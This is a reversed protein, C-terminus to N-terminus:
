FPLNGNGRCHNYKLDFYLWLVTYRDKLDKAFWIADQIKAKGYLEEFESIDLGIDSVYEKMEALSPAEALISKIESWNKKYKKFRNEEYWGMKNQLSIVENALNHYIRNIESTYEEKAIMDCM